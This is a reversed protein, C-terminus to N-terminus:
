QRNKPPLTSTRILEDNAYISINVLKGWSNWKKWIGNKKLEYYRNISKVEKYTVPNFTSGESYNIIGTGIFEKYAILDDQYYEYISMSGLTDYPIVKIYRDEFTEIKITDGIRTKIKSKRISRDGVSIMIESTDLTQASLSFSSLFLLFLLAFKFM